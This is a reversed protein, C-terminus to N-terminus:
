YWISGRLVERVGHCGRPSTVTSPVSRLLRSRTSAPDGHEGWRYTSQGKGRPGGGRPRPQPEAWVPVRCPRPALVSTPTLATRPPPRRILPALTSCGGVGHAVRSGARPVWGEGPVSTRLGRGGPPLPRPSTATVARHAQVATTPLAHTHVSSIHRTMRPLWKMVTVTVAKNFRVQSTVDGEAAPRFARPGAGKWPAHGGAPRTSCKDPAAGPGSVGVRGHRRLLHCPCASLWPAGTRASEPLRRVTGQNALLVVRAWGSLTLADRTLMRNIHYYTM